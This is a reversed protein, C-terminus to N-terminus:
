GGLFKKLWNLHLTLGEDFSIRPKWGTDSELKSSNLVNFKVDFLRAPQHIINTHSALLKEIKKLVEMNTYGVGTGINYTELLKGRTLTLIIGSVLDDIYIYDRVTDGEGFITLTKKNIISAMATSVFGQGMFPVQGPGFSNGPRVCLYNLGHTQSFLYAYDEIIKKTVGYPSIPKAIQHENILNSQVNGYVTGGSSILLLKIKRKAAEIFLNIMPPLNQNLDGLPDDFSTNPITAYALQIVEDQHDLLKKLPGIDGYSGQIYNVGIPNIQGLPLSRALVTVERGTEILGKLLHSGIFGAGGIVLVRIKRM